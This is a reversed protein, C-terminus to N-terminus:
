NYRPFHTVLNFLVILEFKNFFTFSLGQYEKMAQETCQAVKLWEDFIESLVILDHDRHQRQKVHVYEM